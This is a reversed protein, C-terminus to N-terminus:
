SQCIFDLRYIYYVRLFIVPLKDIDVFVINLFRLLLYKTKRQNGSVTLERRHGYILYLVKILKGSYKM